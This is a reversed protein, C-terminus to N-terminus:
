LHTVFLEEPLDEPFDSMFGVIKLIEFVKKESIHQSLLFMCLQM